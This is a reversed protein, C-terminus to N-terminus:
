QSQVEQQQTQQSEQYQPQSQQVEQVPATQQPAPQPQPSQGQLEQNYREAFKRFNADKANQRMFQDRQQQNLAEFQQKAKNYDFM